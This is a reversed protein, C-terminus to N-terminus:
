PVVSPFFLSFLVWGGSHRDTDTARWFAVVFSCSVVSPVSNGGDTRKTPRRREERNTAVTEETIKQEPKKLGAAKRHPVWPCHRDWLHDARFETPATVRAQSPRM